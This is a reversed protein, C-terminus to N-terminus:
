EPTNTRVLRPPEQSRRHSDKIIGRVPSSQREKRSRQPSPKSVVDGLLELKAKKMERKPKNMQFSEKGFKWSDRRIGKWGLADVGSRSFRSRVDCEIM